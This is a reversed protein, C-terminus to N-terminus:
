EKANNTTVKEDVGSNGTMWENREQKMKRSIIENTSMLLTEILIHWNPKTTEKLNYENIVTRPKKKYTKKCYNSNMCYIFTPSIRIIMYSCCAQTQACVNQEFM